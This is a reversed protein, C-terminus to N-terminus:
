NSSIVLLFDALAAVGAFTAAACNWWGMAQLDDALKTVRNLEELGPKIRTLKITASKFWCAAAIIAAVILVINADAGLNM